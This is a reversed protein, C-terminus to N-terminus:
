EYRMLRLGLILLMFGAVILHVPWPIAIETLELILWYIGGGVLALGVMFLIDSVFRETVEISPPRERKYRYYTSVILISLLIEAFPTPTLVWTLVILIGVVAPDKLHKEISYGIDAIVQLLEEEPRERSIGQREKGKSEEDV